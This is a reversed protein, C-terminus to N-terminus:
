VALVDCRSVIGGPACGSHCRHRLPLALLRDLDHPEGYDGAPPLVPSTPVTGGHGPCHYSYGYSWQPFRRASCRRPCRLHGPPSHYAVPWDLPAHPVRCSLFATRQSPDPLLPSVFYLLEIAIRVSICPLGPVSGPSVATRVPYLAFLLVDCVRTAHVRHGLADHLARVM